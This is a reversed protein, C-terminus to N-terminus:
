LSMRMQKKSGKSDCNCIKCTQVVSAQNQLHTPVGRMLIHDTNLQFKFNPVTSTMIVDDIAMKLSFYGFYTFDIKQIAGKEPWKKHWGM